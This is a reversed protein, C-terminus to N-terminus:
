TAATGVARWGAGPLISTDTLGARDFWDRVDDRRYRNEISRALGRILCQQGHRM